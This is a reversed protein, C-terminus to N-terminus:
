AHWFQQSMLVVHAASCRFYKTTVKAAADALDNALSVFEQSVTVAPADTDLANIASM